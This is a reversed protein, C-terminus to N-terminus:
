DGERGGDLDGGADLLLRVEEAPRRGSLNLSPLRWDM